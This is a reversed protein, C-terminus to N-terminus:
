RLIVPDPSSIASAATGGIDMFATIIPKAFLIVIIVLLIIAAFKVWRNNWISEKPKTLEVVYRGFDRVVSTLEELKRNLYLVGHEAFSTKEQDSLFDKTICSKVQANYLLVPYHFMGYRSRNFEGQDLEIKIKDGQIVAEGEKVPPALSLVASRDYVDNVQETKNLAGSVYPQNLTVIFPRIIGTSDLNFILLGKGELMDTFPNRLLIRGVILGAATGIMFLGIAMWLGYFVMGITFSITPLFGALILTGYKKLTFVNFFGM